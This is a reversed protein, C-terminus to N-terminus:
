PLSMTVVGGGGEARAGGGGGETRRQSPRRWLLRNQFPLRLWHICGGGEGMVSSPHHRFGSPLIKESTFHATVVNLKVRCHEHEAFGFRLIQESTFTFLYQRKAKCTVHEQEAFGFRLLTLVYQRKAKCQLTIGAFM